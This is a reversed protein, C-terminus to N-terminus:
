MFDNLQHENCHAVTHPKCCATHPKRCEFEHLKRRQAASRVATDPMLTHPLTRLLTRSVLLTRPLTRSDLSAASDESLEALDSLHPL